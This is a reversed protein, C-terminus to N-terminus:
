AARGNRHSVIAGSGTPLTIRCRRVSASFLRRGFVPGFALSMVCRAIELSRRICGCHNTREAGGPRAIVAHSPLAFTETSHPKRTARKSPMGNTPTAHGRPLGSLVADMPAAAASPSATRPLAHLADATAEATFQKISRDEVLVPDDCRHCQMVQTAAPGHATGTSM